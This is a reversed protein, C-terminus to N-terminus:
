DQNRLVPYLIEEGIAEHVLLERKIKAFL